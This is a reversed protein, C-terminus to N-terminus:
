YRYYGTVTGHLYSVAREGVGKSPNLADVMMGNGVYVGVHTANNFFVLDGPQPNSVKKGVAIQEYTTRPIDKGMIRMFQQAFSSCDVESSNNAGWVYRKGEALKLATARISNTSYKTYVSDGEKSDLYREFDSGTSSQSDKRELSALYKRVDSIDNQYDYTEKYKDHFDKIEKEYQEIDMNIDKLLDESAKISDDTKDIYSNMEKIYQSYDEEKQSAYATNKEDGLVKKKFDSIEKSDKYEKVKRDKELKKLGKKLEEKDKDINKVKDIEGLDVGFSVEKNNKVEEKDKDNCGVLNLSMTTILGLVMLRKISIGLKNWGEYKNEINNTRNNRNYSM